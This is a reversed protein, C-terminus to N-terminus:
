DEGRESVGGREAEDSDRSGGGELYERARERHYPKIHASLMKYAAFVVAADDTFGLGILVDPIVDFPLIFYALAALLIGKVKIPTDSDTAAYYASLAQSAFPIRRAVSRM